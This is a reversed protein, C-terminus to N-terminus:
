RGVQVLQQKPAGPGRGLAAKPSLVGSVTQEGVANVPARYTAVEMGVLSECDKVVTANVAEVNRDRGSGVSCKKVSRRAILLLYPTFLGLCGV